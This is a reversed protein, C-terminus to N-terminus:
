RTTPDESNVQELLWDRFLVAAPSLSELNQYVLYYAETSAVSAGFDCSVLGLTEVHQNTTPSRALAIGYGSRAMSFAIQTSNTFCFHKAPITQVGLAMLIQNWNIQHYSIQILRHNLFDEPKHISQAIEPRAVPFSTDSYLKDCQGWSRHVPGFTIRLESGTRQYDEDYYSGSLHLQIEPYKRSFDLLRPALWMTTFIAEAQITLTNHSDKGFLSTATEEITSLSQLVAPLFARGAETLEVQRPGRKFLETGFHNELAKIQQSIASTSMNLIDAARAFSEMRAAAEFVRLWNLSPINRQM